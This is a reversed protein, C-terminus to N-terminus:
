HGGLVDGGPIWSVHAHGAHGRREPARCLGRAAAHSGRAAAGPRRHVHRGHLRDRGLGSGLHGSGTGWPGADQALSALRRCGCTGGAVHPDRDGTRRFFGVVTALVALACSAQLPGNGSPRECPAPIVFEQPIWSRFYWWIGAFSVVISAAAPLAMWFAFEIFGIGLLNSVVLNIPNAIVLAGVLNAIYLVAFYFPLKNEPKWGDGGIREVLSFVIPTFILVAADNTFVTGVLTGAFFIYTFLTPGSGRARRALAAGLLEFLGAREAIQTMVMLSVITVVPAALLRAATVLIDPPGIGLLVTLVAGIVAAGSHHIRVRGIRPRGLSLGVTAAVISLAAMQAM